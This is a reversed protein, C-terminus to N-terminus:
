SHIRKKELDTHLKKKHDSPEFELDWKGMVESTRWLVKIQEPPPHKSSESVVWGGDMLSPPLRELWTVAFRIRPIQLQMKLDTEAYVKVEFQRKVCKPLVIM